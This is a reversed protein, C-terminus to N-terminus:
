WGRPYHGDPDLKFDAKADKTYKDACEVCFIVNPIAKIRELPIEKKCDKCKM